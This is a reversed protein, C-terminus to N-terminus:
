PAAFIAPAPLPAATPAAPTFFGLTVNIFYAWGEISPVADQILFSATCALLKSNFGEYTLMICFETWNWPSGTFVRIEM